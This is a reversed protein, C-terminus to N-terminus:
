DAIFSQITEVISLEDKKTQPDKELLKCYGAVRRLRERLMQSEFSSQQLLKRLHELEKKDDDM